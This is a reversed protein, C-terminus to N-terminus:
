KLSSHANVTVELPPMQDLPRDRQQKAWAWMQSLGSQLWTKDKFGLLDVSKKVNCYAEQVEHRAETYSFNNYGTVERFTQGAAEITWPQSSGLNIIEKSVNKARYLCPIIDDIYTFTRGQLGDGFIVCPLDHLANYMWIGFLNRSRDWMNQGPGYVNRPRIICWDLGQTEGAIQISRESMYKSLGYEDIPNPLMEETFPPTGSYVAVSSTFVLKCNHNVCANIVNATGVTNNYHIFSRIHNSRGESAYAALHYCVDPKFEAFCNNEMTSPQIAVDLTMKLAHAERGYIIPLLENDRPWHKDIAMVNHGQKICYKTLATGIFGAAGTILIKQM